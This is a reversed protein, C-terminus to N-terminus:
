APVRAQLQALLEAQGDLPPLHVTHLQEMDLLGNSQLPYYTITLVRTLRGDESVSALQRLEIQRPSRLPSHIVLKQADLTVRTLAAQGNWLTLGLCLVGFCVTAATFDHWLTWAFLGVFLGCVVSLLLSRPHPYYTQSTTM